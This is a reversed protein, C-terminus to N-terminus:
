AKNIFEAAKDDKKVNRKSLRYMKLLGSEKEEEDEVEGDELDRISRKARVEDQQGGALKLFRDEADRNLKVKKPLEFLEHMNSHEFFKQKSPAQLVKDAM